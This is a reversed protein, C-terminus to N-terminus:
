KSAYLQDEKLLHPPRISCRAENSAQLDLYDDIVFREMYHDADCPCDKM